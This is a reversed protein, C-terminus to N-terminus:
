AASGELEPPVPLQSLWKRADDVATFYAHPCDQERLLAAAIVRDVSSAGVLAVASAFRNWSLTERAGPSMCVDVIEVLMPQLSAGTAAEVAAVVADADAASVASGPAWRLHFAGEADVNLTANACTLAIEVM